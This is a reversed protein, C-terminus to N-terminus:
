LELVIKMIGRIVNIAESGAVGKCLTYQVTCYKLGCIDCSLHEDRDEDFDPFVGKVISSRRQKKKSISKAKDKKEKKLESKTM